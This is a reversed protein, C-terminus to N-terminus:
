GELGFQKALQRLKMQDRRNEERMRALEVLFAGLALAFSDPPKEAVVTRAM